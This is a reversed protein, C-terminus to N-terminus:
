RELVSEMDVSGGGSIESLAFSMRVGGQGNDVSSRASPLRSSSATYEGGGIRSQERTGAAETTRQPLPPEEGIADSIAQQAMKLAEVLQGMAFRNNSARAVNLADLSAKVSDVLRDAPELDEFGSKSVYSEDCGGGGGGAATSSTEDLACATGPRLPHNPDAIRAPLLVSSAGVGGRPSSSFAGRLGHMDPTVLGQRMAPLSSFGTSPRSPLSRNTDVNHHPPTPPAAAIEQTPHPTARGRDQTPSGGSEDPTQAGCNEVAPKCTAVGKSSLAPRSPSTSAQPRPPKSPSSFPSAHAPPSAAPRADAPAASAAASEAQNSAQLSAAADGLTKRTGPSGPAADKEELVGGEPISVISQRVSAAADLHSDGFLSSRILRSDGADGFDASATVSSAMSDDLM